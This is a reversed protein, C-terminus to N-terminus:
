WLVRAYEVMFGAHFTFHWVHPGLRLNTFRSKMCMALLVHFVHPSFCGRARLEM